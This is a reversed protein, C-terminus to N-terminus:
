HSVTFLSLGPASLESRMSFSSRMRRGNTPEKGWIFSSPLETPHLQSGTGYIKKLRLRTLGVTGRSLMFPFIMELSKRNTRITTVCPQSAPFCTKLEEGDSVCRNRYPCISGYHLVNRSIFTARGPKVTRTHAM